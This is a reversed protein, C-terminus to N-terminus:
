SVRYPTLPRESEVKCEYGQDPSMLKDIIM